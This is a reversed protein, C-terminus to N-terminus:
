GGIVDSYKKEISKMKSNASTQTIMPAKDELIEKLSNYTKEAYGEEKTRIEEILQVMTQVYEKTSLESNEQKPEEKITPTSVIEKIMEEKKENSVFSPKKVENDAEADVEEGTILFELQLYTKIVMAYAKFIGKDLNDAGTSFIRTTEEYGTEIDTLTCDYVATTLYMSTSKTLNEFITNVTTAHFVLGCKRACERLSDKFQTGKIYEYKMASNYGDKVFNYKSLMEGLEDKKKLFKLKKELETLEINVKTTEKNPM